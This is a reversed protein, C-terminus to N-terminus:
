KDEYKLKIYKYIYLSLKNISFKSGKKEIILQRFAFFVTDM